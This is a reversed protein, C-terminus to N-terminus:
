HGACQFIHYMHLATYVAGLLTVIASTPLLCSIPSSSQSVEDEFKAISSASSEIFEAISNCDCNELMRQVKTLSGQFQEVISQIVKHGTRRVAEKAHLQCILPNLLLAHHRQPIIRVKALGNSIYM